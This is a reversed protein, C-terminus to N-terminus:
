QFKKFILTSNSGGFGISNSLVIKPQTIRPKLILDLHEAVPDPTQLSLMPPLWDERLCMTCIIAEVSGAGGLLHGIIGKTSSMSIKKALTGAWNTIANSEALDNHFTGTGHANIYDVDQPNINADECALDMSKKTAIGKPNPQTLHHLDTSTGYGIIEALPAAGRKNASALSEIVVMGAGEGLALGDRNKDFPNPQTSTLARLSDFGTYVLRNLTDYGGCLITKNAGNKLQHYAHGIANAGSSCANSIISFPAYLEMFDFLMKLQIHIQYNWSLKALASKKNPNNISTEIYKQGFAMAGASNGICISLEEANVNDLNAQDVAEKCALFLIKSSRDLSTKYKKGFYNDQIHNKLNIYGVTKGRLGKCEYIDLDELNSFAPKGTKLGEANIQWGNGLPSVIGAGTIVVRIKDRTKIESSKM